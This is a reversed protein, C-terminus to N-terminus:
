RKPTSMPVEPVFVTSNSVDPAAMASAVTSYGSYWGFFPQASCSGDSQHFAAAPVMRATISFLPISAASMAPM